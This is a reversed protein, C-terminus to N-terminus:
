NAAARFEATNRYEPIIAVRSMAAALLKVTSRAAHVYRRWCDSLWRGFRRIEEDSYKGTAAM